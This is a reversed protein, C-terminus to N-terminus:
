EKLNGVEDGDDYVLDATAISAVGTIAKITATYLDWGGKYRARVRLGVSIELEPAARIMPTEVEQEVDGDDYFIDYVWRANRSTLAETLRAAAVRAEYWEGVDSGGYRAEVRAGVAFAPLPLNSGGGGGARSKRLNRLASPRTRPRMQQQRQQADGQQQQQQRQQQQYAEEPHQIQQQLRYQQEQQEQQQRRFNLM